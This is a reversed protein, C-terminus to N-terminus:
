RVFIWQQASKWEEYTKKTKLPDAIQLKSQIERAIEERIEQMMKWEEEDFNNPNKLFELLQEKTVENEEFLKETEADQENSAKLLEQLLDENTVKEENKNSLLSFM